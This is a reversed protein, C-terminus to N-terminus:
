IRCFVLFSAQYVENPDWVFFDADYGTELKGKRSDLSAHIATARSTWHILQDFSVNRKEAETWLLSLGLGLSSIGGWAAMIDGEDMKKLEGVCPSHDSVVFDILGERLADWLADRNSAERIPPCCKFDPRSDPIVDADLCLYHFCTEVTLKVGSAKAERIL